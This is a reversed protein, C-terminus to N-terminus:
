RSPWALMLNKVHRMGPPYELEEHGPKLHYHPIRKHWERVAIRLERRALHSGLCRHIGSGFAFHPNAERDFRVVMPDSFIEPDLNAAGWHPVVAAGERIHVGSPLDVPCKAIRPLTSPVPSEWRMLEEVAEAILSPDDVILQRHEPNQALFAFICTLSDGVTDLGAIMLMYCIDIVNEPTLRDGDIETKLLHSIVDDGPHASREDVINGFYEYIRAGTARAITGRLQMDAAAAPDINDPHLLGDRLDLFMRLEHEPLGMLGLFVSSPFPDAFEESFNCEGRDIFTDIFKNVRRSIDDGQADMRKPSFIPDLLKRFRAHVPPDVNLPLLPRINGLNVDMATTFEEHRHTLFKTDERDFSVGLGEAAEVYGRQIMELYREQPASLDSMVETLTGTIEDKDSDKDSTTNVMDIEM